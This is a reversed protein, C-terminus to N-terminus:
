KNGAKGAFIADRTVAMSHLSAQVVDGLNRTLTTLSADTDKSDEISAAKVSSLIKLQTGYNKLAQQYRCLNDQERKEAMNRGPIQKSLVDLQKCYAQIFAAAAKAALLMDQKNGSRAARALNALERALSDAEQSLNKAAQHMENAVAALVEDFTVAKALSINEFLEDSLPAFNAQHQSQVHPMDLTVEEGELERLFKDLSVAAQAAPTLADPNTGLKRALGSTDGVLGRLLNSLNGATTLLDGLDMDDEDLSGLAALLNNAKAMGKIADDKQDRNLTDHWDAMRDPIQDMVNRLDKQNTPDIRRLDGLLEKIDGGANDLLAKKKPDKVNRSVNNIADNYKDLADRLDDVAKRIKEPDGTKVANRLNELAKKVAAGLVEPDRDYSNPELAKKLQALPAKVRNAIDNLEDHAGPRNPNQSVEKAKTLLDKLAPKIDEVAKQGVKRPHPEPLSDVFDGLDNLKQQVEKFKPALRTPDDSDAAVVFKDVADEFDQIPAIDMSKTAKGLDNLAKQMQPITAEVEKQAAPDGRAAEPVRNKFKDFMKELESLPKEISNPDPNKEKLRDGAKRLNKLANALDKLGEEAEKPNAKPNQVKKLANLADALADRMDREDKPRNPGEAARKLRRLADMLDEVAGEDKPNKLVPAANKVIRPLAELIDNAGEEKAQRQYPPLKKLNEPDKMKEALDKAAPVAARLLNNLGKPDEERAAKKMGDILDKVREYAEQEKDRPSKLQPPAFTKRLNELAKQFENKQAPTLKHDPNNKKLNALADLLDKTAAELKKNQEPNDPSKLAARANGIQKALAEEIKDADRKMKPNPKIVRAVDQVADKLEKEAREYHPGKTAKPLAAAKKEANDILGGLKRLNDMKPAEPAADTAIAKAEGIAKRLDDLAAPIKDAQTPDRMARNGAEAVQAAKDKLNQAAKRLMDRTFPSIDPDNARADLHKGLKLAKQTLDTMDGAFKNLDGKNRLNRNLDFKDIDDLLRDASLQLRRLDAGYVIQLLRITKGAM